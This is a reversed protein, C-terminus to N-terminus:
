QRPNPYPRKRQRAIRALTKHQRGCYLNQGQRGATTQLPAACGDLACYRTPANEANFTEQRCPKAEKNPSPEGFTPTLDM